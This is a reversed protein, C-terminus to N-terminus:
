YQRRSMLRGDQRRWPHPRNPVPRWGEARWRSVTSRHVRRGAQILAKAVRRASPDQISNWVTEAERPSVPEPQNMTRNWSTAVPHSPQEEETIILCKTKLLDLNNDAIRWMSSFPPATVLFNLEAVNTM